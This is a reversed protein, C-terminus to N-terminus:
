KRQKLVTLCDDVAARFTDPMATLLDAGAKSPIVGYEGLLGHESLATNIAHQHLWSKQAHDIPLASIRQYLRGSAHLQQSAAACGPKAGSAWYISGGHGHAYVRALGPCMESVMLDQGSLSTDSPHNHHMEIANNPDMLEKRLEPSFEVARAKRKSSLPFSTPKNTKLDWGTLDELDTKKGRAVLDDRTEERFNVLEPTAGHEESWFGGKPIVAPPAEPKWGLAKAKEAATAAMKAFKDFEPLATAANAKDLMQQRANMWAQGLHSQLDKVRNQTEFKDSDKILRALLERYSSGSRPPNNLVHNVTARHDSEPGRGTSKYLGGYRRAATEKETELKPSSEVPASLDPQYLTVTGDPDITMHVGGYPIDSKIFDWTGRGSSPYMVQQKGTKIAHSWGIQAAEVASQGKGTRKPKLGKAALNDSKGVFAGKKGEYPSKAGGGGATEAFRGGEGRPHDAENWADLAGFFPGAADNAGGGAEKRDPGKPGTGGGANEAEFEKAAAGAGPGVIGEEAPPEPVDDPDLGTYPLDPDAIIVGRVEEPSIAGMDVYKQDRDADDKQKQGKEAQSLPRLENFRFSIEPDIEGFLSLQEFNVIRTLNPRMFRNQYAGITDDYVEIEQESTANLGSPSIGTLKVLPIRVVSSMHEQSQAQLHDVGALSTSVNKFDESNKNVVFAGQNDRFMNFMAVRALLNGMNNPQMLTSLDTMLVMVSFSKVLDAVSQRTQLWIDVYPKAMQSLSLGGFAYAPKLMDPVPRGIFPLLRSGDIKQGMVYWVQPNYWDARLPNVANYALPYTWVPEITRLARLSGIAVKGRSMEDRGSGIPSAIEEPDETGLDIYLHSRGFFGDNRCQEYFRHQVELREQDDKLEKVKDTKGAASVRKKREDPDAMREDYGEPDKERDEKQKEEDGVVDFDIWRRTADDAITESFVRYEPRQALESLYTYGLFLLGEGSLGAIEAGALWQTSGWTLNSDMAMRLGSDESPMARDPFKPLVFPNSAASRAKNVAYRQSIEEIQPLLEMWNVATKPEAPITLATRQPLKTEAVVKPKNPNPKRGAGPRYGGRAM